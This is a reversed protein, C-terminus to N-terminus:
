KRTTRRRPEAKPEAKPEEAKEVVKKRTKEPWEGRAASRVGNYVISLSFRLSDLPFIKAHHYLDGLRRGLSFVKRILYPYKSFYSSDRNHGM